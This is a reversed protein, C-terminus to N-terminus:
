VLAIAVDREIRRGRRAPTRDGATLLAGAATPRHRRDAAHDHFGRRRDRQDQSQECVFFGGGAGALGGLNTHLMKGVINGAIMGIGAGAAQQLIASKKKEQINLVHGSIPSSAGNGLVITDFALDIEAKRGQGAKVVHEVHGRITANAYSADGDPYPRTM